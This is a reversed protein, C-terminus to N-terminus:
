GGSSCVGGRGVAEEVAAVDADVSRTGSECGCGEEACVFSGRGAGSMSSRLLMLDVM